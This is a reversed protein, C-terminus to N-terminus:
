AAPFVFHFTSGSGEASEFWISGNHARAIHQSISLGLGHPKEGSTGETRAKTFMDFIFPKNQEPIGMGHDEVTVHVNEAEKELRVSIETGPYSFKIANAVLNNIVRWIKEKYVDAYVTAEPASVSIRQQKATAQVSLLEMSRAVLHNIDTRERAIGSRAIEESAALIDKSLSLSNGCAEMILSMIEKQAQTYTDSEQELLETLSYIAAIPNMVDHAVSKLIRSKEEEKMRVEELALELQQKQKNVTNNLGTLVRVHKLTRKSSRWVLAIIILAMVALLTVIALYLKQQKRDKTLLNINYQKEMDKVRTDVDAAMLAKNARTYRESLTTYAALYTYASAPDHRLEHYQWMLKNWAIEVRQDPITDLEAKIAALTQRMMATDGTKYYLAALKGQDTLADNNSYGKQLNIGISKNYLIEATDTNGTNVFVEAMNGYIVAKPADYVSQQKHPYKGTEATIYNLARTYYAMASDYQHLASYCLGTNDLVEQKFYFLNFDETCPKSENYAEIFSAAAEGYRQQKYLVMALSYAYSRMACSDANDRALKQAMYYYDYADNYLGKAFLADARANYAETRRSIIYKDPAYGELVQLVSDALAISSDYEKRNGYIINCFAYYNMEDAVTLNRMNRHAAQMM